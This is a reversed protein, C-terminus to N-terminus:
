SQVEPKRDWGSHVTIRLVPSASLAPTPPLPRPKSIVSLAQCSGVETQPPGWSAGVRPVERRPTDWTLTFPLPPPQALGLGARVIVVRM